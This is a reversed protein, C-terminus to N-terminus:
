MVRLGLTRCVAIMDDDRTILGVGERLALMVYLADYATLTHTRAFVLADVMSPPAPDTDIDLCDLLRLAGYLGPEDLRKRRVANILGNAVEYRWIVPVVLRCRRLTALMFDATEHREDDLVFNLATSADLVYRM